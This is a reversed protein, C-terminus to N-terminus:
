PNMTGIKEFLEKISSFADSLRVLEDLNLVGLKRLMLEDMSQISKQVLDVGKETLKIHTIRRDYEDKVRTIYDLENLQHLCRSTNPETISLRKALVTSTIDETLYVERLAKSLLPTIETADESFKDLIEKQFVEYFGILEKIVKKKEDESMRKVGRLM